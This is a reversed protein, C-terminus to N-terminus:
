RGAQPIGYPTGNRRKISPVERRTGSESSARELFNRRAAPSHSLFRPPVGGFGCDSEDRSGTGLANNGNGDIRTMKTMQSAVMRCKVNVPSVVFRIRLPMALGTAISIVMAAITSKITLGRRFRQYVPM